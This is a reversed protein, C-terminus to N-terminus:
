LTKPPRLCPCRTCLRLSLSGLHVAACLKAGLRSCPPMADAAARPLKAHGAPLVDAAALGAAM